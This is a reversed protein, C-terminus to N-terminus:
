RSPVSWADSVQTRGPAGARGRVLELRSRRAAPSDRRRCWTLGGVVAGPVANAAAVGGSCSVDARPRRHRAPRARPGAGPGDRREVGPSEGPLEDSPAKLVPCHEYFATFDSALEYLYTCLRHPSYREVTEAVGGDFGLLRLALAREQPSTSPSRDRARRGDSRGPGASSRASGPTPTSCTRRRTATSRCCATGTSCTTM